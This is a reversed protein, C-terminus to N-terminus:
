EDENNKDLLKGLKALRPDIQKKVKEELEDETYFSWGEGAEVMEEDSFVRYPMQLVISELIFPKLDIIDDAVFHIEEEEDAQHRETTFIETAQFRFPYAVDVLTRASPLIMKGEITYSFVIENKELTCIGHVFVSGIQRIDNNKLEALESVNVTEEFSIAGEHANAKLQQVSFKL